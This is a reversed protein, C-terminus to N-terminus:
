ILTFNELDEKFITLRQGACSLVYDGDADCQVFVCVAGGSITQPHERSDLVNITAELRDDPELKTCSDSRM